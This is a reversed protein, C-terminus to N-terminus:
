LPYGPLRHADVLQGLTRMRYAFDFYDPSDWSFEPQPRNMYFAVVVLTVLLLLLSGFFLFKSTQWDEILIRVGGRALHHPRKLLHLLPQSQRPNEVTAPRSVRLAELHPVRHQNNM